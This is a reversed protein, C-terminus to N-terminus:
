EEKKIKLDKDAGRTLNQCKYIKGSSGDLDINQPWVSSSTYLFFIPVALGSSGTLSLTLATPNRIVPDGNEM